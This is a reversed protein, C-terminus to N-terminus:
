ELGFFQYILPLYDESHMKDRELRVLHPLKLSNFIVFSHPMYYSNVVYLVERAESDLKNTEVKNLLDDCWDDWPSVFLINITQKTKKQSKLIKNLDNEKKLYVLRVGGKLPALAYKIKKM